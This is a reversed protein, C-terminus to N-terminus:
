GHNRSIKVDIKNEINELKSFIQDMRAEFEARKVYQGAVLVEISQIKVSLEKVSSHATTLMWMGVTGSAGIIFNFFIQFESM